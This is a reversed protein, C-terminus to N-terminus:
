VRYAVAIDCRPITPWKRRFACTEGSKQVRGVFEEGMNRGLRVRRLVRPTPITGDTTDSFAQNARNKEGHTHILSLPDSNM